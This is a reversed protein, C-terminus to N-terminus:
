LVTVISARVFRTTGRFTWKTTIATAARMRPREEFLPDVHNFARIGVVWSNTLIGLFNGLADTGLPLPLLLVKGLALVEGGGVEAIKIGLTM